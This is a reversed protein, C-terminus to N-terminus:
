TLGRTMGNAFVRVFDLQMAKAANSRTQWALVPMVYSVGQTANLTASYTTQTKQQLTFTFDTGNSQREIRLRSWRGIGVDPAFGVDTYTEAMGLHYRAVNWNLNGTYAGSSQYLFGAGPNGQIFARVSTPTVPDQTFGFFFELTAITDLRIVAEMYFQSSNPLYIFGLGTGNPDPQLQRMNGTTGSTTIVAIGPHDTTGTGATVGTGAAASFRFGGVVQSDFDETLDYFAYGDAHTHNGQAVTTATTGFIAAASIQQGTISMDISATDAVTAAAHAAELAMTGLGLTTRMASADADDLLGRAFSTLTTTSMDTGNFYPLKDAANTLISLAALNATSTLAALESLQTDLPQYSGVPQYVGTHLHNGEAAVGAGTGFVVAGSIQQGSLSMDISATDAVTAAAHLDSTLAVTGDVNPFAFSRTVGAAVGSLDFTAKRLPDAPHSLILKLGTLTGDDALLWNSDQIAKGTTQDFRVLANDTASAPGLVDGTGAGGAAQLVGGVITLGAGITFAAAVGNGEDWGYLSDAGPDLSAAIQALISSYPQFGGLQVRRAM